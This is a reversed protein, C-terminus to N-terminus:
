RDKWDIMDVDQFSSFNTIPIHFSFLQKTGHTLRKVLQTQSLSDADHLSPCDPESSYFFLIISDNTRIM